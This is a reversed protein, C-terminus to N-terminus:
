ALKADLYQLLTRGVNIVLRAEPEDLLAGNPHAVSAKNRVPLLADLISASANLVSKIDQSRPGLAALKPHNAELKRLLAVMTEREGYALQADDCAAILYGHLVTHVRDVASTPGSTTILNEADQLARAVVASTIRPPHAVVLPQAELRSIFDIMAQHTPARSPPAGVEDPPFREIVGRLVRAQDDASLSLVAQIFTERTTGGFQTLDITVGCYEPYFDAHSAYTFRDPLGLYGGSVGIYRNVVRLVEGPTLAGSTASV